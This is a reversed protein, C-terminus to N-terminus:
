YTKFPTKNLIMFLLGSFFAVTFLISSYFAPDSDKLFNYQALKILSDVIGMGFFLIVPLYVVSKDPLHENKRIV